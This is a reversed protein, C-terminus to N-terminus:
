KGGKMSHLARLLQMYSFFYDSPKEINVDLETREDETQNPDIGVERSITEEAQLQKTEALQIETVMTVETLTCEMGHEINDPTSIKGMGETNNCNGTMPRSKSYPESVCVLEKRARKIDQESECPVNADADENNVMREWGIHNEDGELKKRNWKQEQRQKLRGEFYKECASQYNKKQVSNFILSQINVPINATTLHEKLNKDDFHTFICGGDEGHGLSCNQMAYCSHARYNTRSGELGYLHRINYTYRKRDKSWSHDCGTSHSHNSSPQSYERQWFRIAEHVPMGIETLFLTYQIRSFHRLRHKQRLAKHLNQMCPPFNRELHEVDICTIPDLDWQITSGIRHGAYYLHRLEKFVNVMREDECVQKLINKARKLGDVVIQEFLSALIQHLKTCPVFAIGRNLIVERHQVLPLAYEFPVSITDDFDNNMYQEVLLKWTRGNGLASALVFHLDEASQMMNDKHSSRSSNRRILHHVFRYTSKLLSILEASSMNTFRLCFLQTESKIFFSSMESDNACALRLFFHSIRDRKTGEILCESNVATDEQQILSQFASADECDCMQRLFQLRKRGYVSLQEYRCNGSPPKIYFAM